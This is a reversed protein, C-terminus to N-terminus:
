TTTGQMIAWLLFLVVGGLMVFIVLNDQKNDMGSGLVRLEWAPLLLRMSGM